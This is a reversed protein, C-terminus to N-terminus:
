EKALTQLDSGDTCVAHNVPAKACTRCVKAIQLGVYVRGCCSVVYVTHVGLQKYVPLVNRILNIDIM